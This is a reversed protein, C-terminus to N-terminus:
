ETKKRKADYEDAYLRKYNRKYIHFPLDRSRMKRGKGVRYFEKFSNDRSVMELLISIMSKSIKGKM